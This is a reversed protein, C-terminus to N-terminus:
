LVISYVIETGIWYKSGNLLSAGAHFLDIDFILTKNRSPAIRCTEKFDDDFFVTDGGVFDDNLYTLCTFKSYRNQGVDFVSGTDTHIGFSQGVSYKAFFIHDALGQLKWRIGNRDVYVDPLRYLLLDAMLKTFKAHIQKSNDFDSHNFKMIPHQKTNIFNMFEDLQLDSYVDPITVIEHKVTNRM